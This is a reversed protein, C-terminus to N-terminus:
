LQPSTLAKAKKPEKEFFCIMSSISPQRFNRVLSVIVYDDDGNSHSSSFNKIELVVVPHNYASESLPQDIEARQVKHSTHEFKRITHSNEIESQRPLWVINGPRLDHARVPQRVSSDRNRNSTTRTLKRSTSDMADTQTQQLNIEPHFGVM